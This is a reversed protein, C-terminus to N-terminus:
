VHHIKGDNKTHKGPRTIQIMAEFRLIIGITESVSDCGFVMDSLSNCMWAFMEGCYIMYCWLYEMVYGM